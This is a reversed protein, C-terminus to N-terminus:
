ARASIATNLNIEARVDRIVNLIVYDAPYLPVVSITVNLRGLRVDDMTNNTEDCITPNFGMIHGNRLQDRLYADCSDRVINRLSRDHPMSRVWQLNIYLDTIIQDMTRRISVYTRNPDVSSTRGNLFKFARVGPDLFLVEIRARTLEDLYDPENNSDVSIVGNVPGSLTMSAPSVHPQTTALKGAYFGTSESANVGLRGRTGMVTSWGSVIVVRESSVLASVSRARSRSLRPPASVVAIRLGNIPTSREAQAILESVAGEYRVDQLYAGPAAIIACDTSELRRVADIYDQENPLDQNYGPPESGGRLMVNTLYTVGRTNPHTPTGLPSGEIPPALRQPTSRYVADPVPQGGSQMVPLFFARIMNSSQTEPYFGTEPDVSFNNLIFTEAQIPINYRDADIDQVEIRFQGPPLPRVSVRIRNGAAGPTLAEIYVLPRGQFDYLTLNAFRMGSQGGVMPVATAFADNGMLNDTALLDLEGPNTSEDTVKIVTTANTNVYRTLRVKIRNGDNGFFSSYLVLSHPFSIDNFDFDNILTSITSSSSIADRVQRLIEGAGLGPEFPTRGDTLSASGILTTGGIYRTEFSARHALAFSPYDSSVPLLTITVGTPVEDYLHPTSLQSFVSLSVPISANLPFVMFSLYTGIPELGSGFYEYSRPQDIYPPLGVGDISVYSVGLVAYDLTPPIIDVEEGSGTTVDGTATGAINGRVFVGYEGPTIEFAYSLVEVIDVGASSSVSTIGAPKTAPFQIRYGPRIARINPSTFRMVQVGNHVKFTAVLGTPLTGIDALRVTHIHTYRFSGDAEYDPILNTYNNGVVVRAGFYDGQRITPSGIYMAQIEIGRTRPYSYSVVAETNLIASYSAGHQRISIALSSRRPSPVVRSIIFNTAGQMMAQRIFISGSSEDEGFLYAFQQRSDVLTPGIPGRSFVGAVGITNRFYSQFPPPGSITERVTVNPFSYNVPVTSM